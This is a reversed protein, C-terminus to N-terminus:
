ARLRIACVCFSFNFINDAAKFLCHYGRGTKILCLKRRKRENPFFEYFVKETDFDLIILGDSIEGMVAGINYNTNEFYKRKEEETIMRKQFDGWSILPRKDRERIPIFNIKNAELWKIGESITNIM